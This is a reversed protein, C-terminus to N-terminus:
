CCGRHRKPGSSASPMMFSIRPQEYVRGLASPRRRANADWIFSVVGQCRERFERSFFQLCQLYSASRNGFVGRRASCLQSTTFSALSLPVKSSRLDTLDSPTGTTMSIDTSFLHSERAYSMGLFPSTWRSKVKAMNDDFRELRRLGYRKAHMLCCHRSSSKPCEEGRLRFYAKLRCYQQANLVEHTIKSAMVCVVSALSSNTGRQASM